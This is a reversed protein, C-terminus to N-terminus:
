AIVIRTQDEKLEKIAQWETPSLNQRSPRKRERKIMHDIEKVVTNRMLTAENPEIKKSSILAEVATIYELAPVEKLSPRFKVGRALVRTQAESLSKSSLNIVAETKFNRSIRNEKGARRLKKLKKNQIRLHEFYVKNQANKYEAQRQDSDSGETQPLSAIQMSKIFLKAHLYNLQERMRKKAFNEELKGANKTFIRAKSFFGKPILKCKFCRTLFNIHAKIAGIQKYISLGSPM